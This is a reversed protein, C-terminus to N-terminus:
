CVSTCPTTEGVHLAKCEESNFKMINRHVWKELKHLDRWIAAPSQKTHDALIFYSFCLSLTMFSIKWVQLFQMNPHPFDFMAESM